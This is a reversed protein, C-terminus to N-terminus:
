GVHTDGNKFYQYDAVGYKKESVGPLKFWTVAHFGWKIICPPKNPMYNIGDFCFLDHLLPCWLLLNGKTRRVTSTNMPTINQKM